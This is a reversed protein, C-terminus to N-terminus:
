FIPCGFISSIGRAVASAPTQFSCIQQSREMPTHAGLPTQESLQSPPIDKCFFISREYLFIDALRLSSSVKSCSECKYDMGKKKQKGNSSIPIPTSIGSENATTARGADTHSSTESGNENNELTIERATGSNPPGAVSIDSPSQSPPRPALPKSAGPSTSLSLSAISLLSFRLFFKM